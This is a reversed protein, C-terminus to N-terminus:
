ARRRHADAHELRWRGSGFASLLKEARGTDLRSLCLASQYFGGEGILTGADLPDVTTFGMSWDAFRRQEIPERVIQAVHTHRPDQVIRDYLEDIVDPAGELAQFFNGGIYLLMGTVEHRVNAARVRELLAPIQYEKFHPTAVSSYIRHILSSM